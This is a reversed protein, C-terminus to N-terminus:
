RQIHGAAWQRDEEALRQRRFLGFIELSRRM